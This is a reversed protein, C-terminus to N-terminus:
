MSPRDGTATAIPTGSPVTAAPRIMPQSQIRVPTNPEDGNSVAGEIVPSLVRELVMVSKVAGSGTESALEPKRPSYM